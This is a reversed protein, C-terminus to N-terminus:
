VGPAPREEGQDFTLRQEVHAQVQRVFGLHLPHELYAELAERGELTMRVLLDANTDRPICNRSVQVDEIGALAKGIGNFVEVSISFVEDSFFGPKLKLRLYHIM